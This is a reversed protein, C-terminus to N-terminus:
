LYCYMDKWYTYKVYSETSSIISGVYTFQEVLKLPKGTLFVHVRTKDANLM